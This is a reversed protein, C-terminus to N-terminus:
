FPDNISPEKPVDQNSEEVLTLPHEGDWKCLRLTTFHGREDRGHDSIYYYGNGFSYLGTSGYPFDWGSKYLTLLKGECAPEIGALPKVQPAITGDILFMPENKYQPKSGRYVALMYHGSYADYEMNQVGWRTNGTFLWFRHLPKAPGSQHMNEQNLPQAYADWDAVDYCLIIQHDNDTRDNEEYIGCAVFLYQKGDNAGPMPGFTTGDIGSVGYRHDYTKGLNVATAHYDDVPDCLYVCKMVGDRSADMDMRDIKDVDFIAIYFGVPLTATSGIASLINRGIIDDKYELSGYLRGDEDNFDICGLHGMLGIASGVVNGKMDMKILATTFSLYIYEHKTDLAIGQCHGYHYPGCHIERPFNFNEPIM